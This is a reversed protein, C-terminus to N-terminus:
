KTKTKNFLSKDMEYSTSTSLHGPKLSFGKRELYDRMPTVTFDTIEEDILNNNVMDVYTNPEIVTEGQYNTILWFKNSSSQYIISIIDVKAICYPLDEKSIDGETFVFYDTGNYYSDDGCVGSYGTNYEFMFQKKCSEYEKYKGDFMNDFDFDVIQSYIGNEPPPSNKYTEYALDRIMQTEEETLTRSDPVDIEPEVESAVTNESVATNEVVKENAEATNEKNVKNTSLAEEEKLNEIKTPEKVPGESCGTLSLTSTGLLFMTGYIALRKKVKNRIQNEM